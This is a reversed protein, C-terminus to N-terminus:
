AALRTLERVEWVSHALPKELYIHKGMRLAFYASHFHTHDPTSIVVADIQKGMEDYMRRFDLYKKAKPFRDYAKGARVDDVDCLAVINQSTVANLNAGGQGGLGIVALNLRNSPATDAAQLPSTGLWFGAGVVGSTKLFNRRTLKKSM